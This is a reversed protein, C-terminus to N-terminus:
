PKYPLQGIKETIMASEEPLSDEDTLIPIDLKAKASGAMIAKKAEPSYTRYDSGEKAIINEMQWVLSLLYTDLHALLSYFMYTRRHIVACQDSTTNLAEMIEEAQANSILAQDM